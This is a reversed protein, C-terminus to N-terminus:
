GSERILRILRIEYHIIDDSESSPQVFWDQIRFERHIFSETGLREMFQTIAELENGQTYANGQIILRKGDGMEKKLGKKEGTETDVKLQTVWVEKPISLSIAQLIDAWNLAGGKLKSIAEVKKRLIGIEQKMKENLQSSLPIEQRLTAIEREKSIFIVAYVILPLVFLFIYFIALKRTGIGRLPELIRRLIGQAKGHRLMNIDFRM